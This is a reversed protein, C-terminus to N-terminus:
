RPASPEGCDPARAVCCRAILRFRAHRRGRTPVIATGTPHRPQSRRVSFHRRQAAPIIQPAADVARGCARRRRSCAACVCPAKATSAREAVRRSEARQCTHISRPVFILAMPVADDGCGHPCASRAPVPLVQFWLKVQLKLLLLHSQENMVSDSLLRRMHSRLEAGDAGGSRHAAAPLGQSGDTLCFALAFSAVFPDSSFTWCMQVLDHSPAPESAGHGSPDFLSSLLSRVGTPDDSYSLARARKKVFLAARDCLAALADGHQQTDISQSWYRTPDVQVAGFRRHRKAHCIVWSGSLRILEPPVAHAVSVASNLHLQGFALPAVTTTVCPVLARLKTCFCASRLPLARFCRPAPAARAHHM